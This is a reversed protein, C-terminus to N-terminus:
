SQLEEPSAKSRSALDNECEIIIRERTATLQSFVAVCRNEHYLKLLHDDPETLRFGLRRYKGLVADLASGNANAEIEVYM